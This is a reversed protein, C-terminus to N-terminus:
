ARKLDLREGSKSVSVWRSGGSIRESHRMALPAWPLKLSTALNAAARVVKIRTPHLLLDDLVKERLRPLSEVLERAESISQGNGIDSLLELVAREPVSVLVEPHGAPLPQLGLGAPLAGDFLQTAQYRSPFRESFWAPLTKPKSGWLEIIERFAVNQRIGRWALATKSGVHLGPIQRSLFALSEDRTLMDGPLMYAGRGLHVLWGSRALASARYATM